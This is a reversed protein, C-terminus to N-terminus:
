LKTAGHYSTRRKTLDLLDAGVLVVTLGLAIYIMDAVNAEASDGPLTKLMTNKECFRSHPVASQCCVGLHVCNHLNLCDYRPKSTRAAHIDYVFENPTRASAISGRERLKIAFVPLGDSTQDKSHGSTRVFDFIRDLFDEQLRISAQTVKTPLGFERRPEM